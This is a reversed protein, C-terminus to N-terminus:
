TSSDVPRDPASEAGSKKELAARARQTDLIVALLYCGFAAFGFAHGVSMAVIVPIARPDLLSYAMLGLGILACVCAIRTLTMVSSQLVRRVLNM